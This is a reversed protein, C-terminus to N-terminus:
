IRVLAVGQTSIHYVNVRRGSLYPSSFLLFIFRSLIYYGCSSRLAAMIVQILPFM